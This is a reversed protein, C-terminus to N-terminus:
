DTLCAPDFANELRLWAVIERAYPNDFGKYKAILERSASPTIVDLGQDQFHPLDAIIAEALHTGCLKRCATQFAAQPDYARGLNYSASLSLLPIRSLWAQNMPNVAHGETLGALRDPRNNFARLHLFRSKKAGDNVPYNDWLFPKRDLLRTVQSM